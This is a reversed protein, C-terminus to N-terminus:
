LTGTCRASLFVVEVYLMVQMTKLRESVNQGVTLEASFINHSM